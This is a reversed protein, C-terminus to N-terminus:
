TQGLVVFFCPYQSGGEEYYDQEEVSIVQWGEAANIAGFLVNTQAFRRSGGSEAGPKLSDSEGLVVVSLAALEDEMISYVKDGEGSSVIPVYGASQIEADLKSQLGDLSERTGEANEFYYCLMVACDETDLTYGPELTKGSLTEVDQSTLVAPLGADGQNQDVPTTPVPEKSGACGALGAILALSLLLAFIKKM